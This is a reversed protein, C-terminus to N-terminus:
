KSGGNLITRILKKRFEWNSNGEAAEKLERILNKWRECEARSEALAARVTALFAAPDTDAQLAGYEFMDALKAIEEQITGPKIESM